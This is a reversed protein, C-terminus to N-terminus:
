QTQSSLELMWFVSCFLTRFLWEKPWRRFCLRLALISFDFLLIRVIEFYLFPNIISRLVVSNQASKSNIFSHVDSTMGYKGFCVHAFPFLPTRTFTFCIFFRESLEHSLVVYSSGTTSSKYIWPSLSPMRSVNRNM